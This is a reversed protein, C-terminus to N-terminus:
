DSTRWWPAPVPWPEPPAQLREAVQAAATAPDASLHERRGAGYHRVFTGAKSDWTVYVPQRGRAVAEVTTGNSFVATVVPQRELFSEFRGTGTRPHPPRPSNGRLPEAAGVNM